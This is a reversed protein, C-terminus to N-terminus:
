SRESVSSFESSVPSEQGFWKNLAKIGTGSKNNETDVKRSVELNLLITPKEVEDALIAAEKMEERFSKSWGSQARVAIERVAPEVTEVRGVPQIESRVEEQQKM